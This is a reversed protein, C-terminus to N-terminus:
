FTRGASHGTCALAAPERQMLLGIIKMSLRYSESMRGRPSCTVHLIKMMAEYGPNSQTESAQLGTAM